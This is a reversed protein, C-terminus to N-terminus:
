LSSENGPSRVDCLDDRKGVETTEVMVILPLSGSERRLPWADEYVM